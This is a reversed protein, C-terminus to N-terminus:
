NMKPIIDIVGTRHTTYVGVLRYIIVYIYKYTCAMNMVNFSSVILVQTDKIYTQHVDYRPVNRRLFWHIVM